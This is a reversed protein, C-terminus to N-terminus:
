LINSENVFLMLDNVFSNFIIPGLISGQPVGNNNNNNIM